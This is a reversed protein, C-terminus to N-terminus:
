PIPEGPLGPLGPPLTEEPSPSEEPSSAEEPVPTSGSTETENTNEPEAVPAPSEQNESSAPPSVQEEPPATNEKKRSNEYVPPAVIERPETRFAKEVVAMVEQEESSDLSMKEYGKRWRVFWGFLSFKNEYTTIIKKIREREGMLLTLQQEVSNKAVL